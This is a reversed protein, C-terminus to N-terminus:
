DQEPDLPYDRPADADPAPRPVGVARAKQAADEITAAVAGATESPGMASAELDALDVSYETADIEEVVAFTVEINVRV